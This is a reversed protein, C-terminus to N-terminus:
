HIAISRIRKVFLLFYVPLIASVLWFTTTLTLGSALSIAVITVYILSGTVGYVAAAKPRGLALPFPAVTTAVFLCSIYIAMAPILDQLYLWQEGLFPVVHPMCFILILVLFLAGLFLRFILKDIHARRLEASSNLSAVDRINIQLVRGIAESVLAVPGRLIRQTFSYQGAMAVGGYFTILIVVITEQLTSFISQVGNFITFTKYKKITSRYESFRLNVEFALAWKKHLGFGLIVGTAQGLITSIILYEFQSANTQQVMFIGVLTGLAISTRVLALSVFQQRFNSLNIIIANLSLLASLLGVYFIKNSQLIFAVTLIITVVTLMTSCAAVLIRHVERDIQAFVFATELRLTTVLAIPAAIAFIVAYVGFVEPGFAKAAYTLTCLNITQAVISGAVVAGIKRSTNM